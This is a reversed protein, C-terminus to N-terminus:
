APRQSSPMCRGSSARWRLPSRRSQPPMRLTARGSAGRRGEQVLTAAVLEGAARNTDLLAIGYGDQALRQAAAEGIGSAGGTIVAVGKDSM